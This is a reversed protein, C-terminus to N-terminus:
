WLSGDNRSAVLFVVCLLSFVLSIERRTGSAGVRRISESLRAM